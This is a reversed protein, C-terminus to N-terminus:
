GPQIPIQFTPKQPPFFVLSGPSFGRLLALVLLLSLERIAGPGFRVWAVNTPPSCDWWQAMGAGREEQEQPLTLNSNQLVDYTSWSIGMKFSIDSLMQFAWSYNKCFLFFYLLDGRM